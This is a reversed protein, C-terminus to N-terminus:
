PNVQISVPIVLTASGSDPPSFQASAVRAAMCPIVPASLGTAGSPTTSLVEGSKGIKVLIRLQAGASISAPDSVLAKNVCRRFGAAMGAVVASANAIVGGYLTLGGIAVNARPGPVTGGVPTAGPPSAGVGALGGGGNGVAGPGGGNLRLGANVPTAGSLTEGTIDPVAASGNLQALEGLVAPDFHEMEDLIKAGESGPAPAASASAIPAAPITVTEAVPAAPAGSCAVLSALLLFSLAIPRPDM